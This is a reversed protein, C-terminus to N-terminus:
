KKLENSCKMREIYMTRITRLIYSERMSYEHNDVVNRLVGRFLHDKDSDLDWLHLETLVKYAFDWQKASAGTYKNINSM